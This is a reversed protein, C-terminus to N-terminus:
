TRIYTINTYECFTLCEGVDRHMFEAIGDDWKRAMEIQGHKTTAVLRQKREDTKEGIIILEHYITSM